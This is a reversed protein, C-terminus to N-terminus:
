AAIKAARAYAAALEVRELLTPHDGILVHLLEPPRPQQLNVRALHVFLTRAAAPDHTRELALWDAEREYVRSVAAAVPTLAVQVLALALIARRVTRADPVPAAARLVALGPLALLAFWALGKWVHRRGLHAREHALLFAREPRTFPRRLATDDVVIRASPGIGIAEANAARTQSHVESIWYGGRARRDGITTVYPQLFVVLLAAGCLVPWAALWWRAGFRRGLVLATALALAAAALVVLLTLGSALLWSGYSARAIGHRRSWWHDALAFPVGALWWAAVAALGGRFARRPARRALWALVGVQAVTGALLSWRLFRAYDRTRRLTDAGFVAHADLHPPRLSAPVHTRLLLWAALAWLATLLTM